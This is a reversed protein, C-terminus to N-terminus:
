GKFESFENFACMTCEYQWCAANYERLQERSTHVISAMVGFEILIFKLTDRYVGQISSTFTLSDRAHTAWYLRCAHRIRKGNRLDCVRLTDTTVVIGQSRHLMQVVIYILRITMCPITFAATCGITGDFRIYVGSPGAHMHPLILCCFRYMEMLKLMM